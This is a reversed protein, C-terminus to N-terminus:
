LVIIQKAKIKNGDFIERTLSYYIQFTNLSLEEQQLNHVQYNLCPTYFRQSGRLIVEPAEQYASDGGPGAFGDGHTERRRWAEAM